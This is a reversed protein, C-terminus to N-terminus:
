IRPKRHAQYYEDVNLVPKTGPKIHRSIRESLEEISLPKAITAMQSESNYSFLLKDGDKLQMAKRAQAPLTVQGKSTITITAQM